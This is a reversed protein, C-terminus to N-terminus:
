KTRGIEIDAGLGYLNVQVPQGMHYVAMDTTSTVTIPDTILFAATHGQPANPNSVTCSRWQNLM